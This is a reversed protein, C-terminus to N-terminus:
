SEGDLIEALSDVMESMDLYESPNDSEARVRWDSLLQRLQDERAAIDAAQTVQDLSSGAVYREHFKGYAPFDKPDLLELELDDM